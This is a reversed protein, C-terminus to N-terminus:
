ARPMVSKLDLNPVHRLSHALLRYRCMLSEDTPDAHHRIAIREIRNTVVLQNLPPRHIIVFCRCHRDHSLYASVFLSITIVLAQVELMDECRDIMVVLVSLVGGATFGDREPILLTRLRQLRELPTCVTMGSHFEIGDFHTECAVLVSEIESKCVVTRALQAVSRLIM